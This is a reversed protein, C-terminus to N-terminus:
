ESANAAGVPVMDLGFEFGDVLEEVDDDRKPRAIWLVVAAAVVALGLSVLSAVNFAHAFADAARAHVADGGPVTSAIRAAAGVSEEGHARAAATLGLGSLDIGSRFASNAISGLIAIGLAGGLERTTDNVASGVGAKSLPVASM